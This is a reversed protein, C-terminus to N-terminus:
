DISTSCGGSGAAHGPAKELDDKGQNIIELLLQDYPQRLQQNKGGSM